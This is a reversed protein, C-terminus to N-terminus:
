LVHIKGQMAALTANLAENKTELEENKAELATIKNTLNAVSQNCEEDAKELAEIRTILNANTKELVEFKATINTALAEKLKDIIDKQEDVIEKCEHNTQTIERVDVVFSDFKGVTEVFVPCVLVFLTLCSAVTKM